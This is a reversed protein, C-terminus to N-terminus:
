LAHERRAGLLHVRRSKRWATMTANPSEKNLYLKRLMQSGHSLWFMKMQHLMDAKLQHILIPATQSSRPAASPTKWLSILSPRRIQFLKMSSNM